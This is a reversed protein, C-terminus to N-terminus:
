GPDVLECSLQHRERQGDYWRYLGAVREVRCPLQGRQLWEVRDFGNLRYLGHVGHIRYVGYVWDLRYLWFGPHRVRTDLTFHYHSEL